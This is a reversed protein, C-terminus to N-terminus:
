TGDWGEELARDLLNQDIVENVRVRLGSNVASKVDRLFIKDPSENDMVSFWGEKPRWTHLSGCYTKGDKMEVLVDHM